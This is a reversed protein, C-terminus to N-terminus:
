FRYAIAGLDPGYGVPSKVYNRELLAAMGGDTSWADSCSYTGERVAEKKLESEQNLCAVMRTMVAM